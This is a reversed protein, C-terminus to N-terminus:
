SLGLGSGATKSNRSKEVRYFREFIQDIDAQDIGVGQDAVKLLLMNEEQETLTVQVQTNAPSYKVANDVLNLVIQKFWEEKGSIHYNGAAVSFVSIDIQKEGAYVMLSDAVEYLLPVPDFLIRESNDMEGEIQSLKLLESILKKLRETEIEIITLSTERDSDSLQKWSHLTQVFGNILTLPTRLEHSVNSVFEDKMRELRRMETVDKILVLSGSHNYPIYKSFMAEINVDLIKGEPIELTIKLTQKDRNVRSSTDLVTQLLENTENRGARGSFLDTKDINLLEEAQPNILSITDDADVIMIGTGIHSLMSNIKSYKASDSANLLDYRDILTNFEKELQILEASHANLQIKQLGGPGSAAKRTHQLLNQIPKRYQHLIFTTLLYVLLSLLLFIGGASILFGRSLLRMEYVQYSFSTVLPGHKTEIVKGVSVSLSDTKKNRYISAASGKAKAASLNANIYKSGLHMGTSASSDALLYSDTDVVIIHASSAAGQDVAIRQYDPYNNSSNYDAPIVASDSTSNVANDISNHTSNNVANDVALLFHQIDNLGQREVQKVALNLTFLFLLLFILFIVIISIIIMWLHASRKM